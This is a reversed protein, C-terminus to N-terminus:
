THHPSLVLKKRLTFRVEPMQKALINGPQLVAEKQSVESNVRHLISTVDEGRSCGEKLQQCVSQIFWAGNTTHRYAPHDEVTAMAVLIDAEEPISLSQCDNDAQLDTVLVGGHTQDGQCAQILFVKPKGTLASQETAKFTRTIEKISLQEGDIGTVVGNKGHSLICCIFADGHEAAGHFDQFGGKSWEKVDSQPLHSSGSVAALCTLTRVMQERTQDKCMLVRFGLWSFVEALSEADRNTGKREKHSSFKENNIIVCLGVPRSNLQYSDDKKQRKSEPSMNEAQSSHATQLQPFTQRLDEDTQLLNLFDQCREDGKFMIKDVLAVVHGEVDEGTISKLKIYERDTILAKEHVKNLILTYDPSLAM